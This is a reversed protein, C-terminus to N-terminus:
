SWAAVAACGFRGTPVHPLKEWRMSSPNFREMAALQDASDDCDNDESPAADGGVVYLKGAVGIAACGHRATPLAQMSLWVATRPDFRDVFPVPQEGDHGGVVWVHGAVAAVACGFRHRQQQLTPLVDWRPEGIRSCRPLLSRFEMKRNANSNHSLLYVRGQLSAAACGLPAVQLPPLRDWSGRLADFRQTVTLHSYTALSERGGIVYVVGEVVAAACRSRPAPMPPRQEWSASQPDFRDVTGLVSRGDDGGIVYVSGHLTAAACGYRPTPLPTLACWRGQIPSYRELTDLAPLSDNKGGVIFIDKAADKLLVQMVGHLGIGHERSVVTAQRLAAVGAFAAIASALERTQLVDRLVSPARRRGMCEGFQGHSLLGNDDLADRLTNVEEQLAQKESKWVVKMAQLEDTVRQLDQRFADHENYICCIDRYHEELIVNVGGTTCM